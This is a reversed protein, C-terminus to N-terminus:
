SPIKVNTLMQAVVSIDCNGGCLVIAIKKVDDSMGNLQNFKENNIVAAVGVGSTPEIILKAREWVLKTAEKIEDESVTIVDDVVDRIIPWANPGISVKVGDAITVPPSKNSTKVGTKKSIFCDNAMEPEAAYVLVSPKIHKAAIAIGSIMGGGGVPAIIADVDPLSDLIEIAMTGQGAMVGANQSADIFVGDYQLRVKECTDVRSEETPQCEVICGGYGKVADKKCQPANNPMIIYCPVGLIQSACAIAQGHNGSSHTVVCRQRLDPIRELALTISNMAGRIKFSGTKQMNETKMYCQRGALKDITKCTMLPTCHVKEKIKNYASEVDNFNICHMRSMYYTSAKIGIINLKRAASITFM